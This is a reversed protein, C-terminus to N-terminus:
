GWANGMWRKHWAQFMLVNWLSSHWNSVRDKHERWRGRIIGPALLGSEALSVPDLLDEAWDRLPGRLWEDIPVSFGMTPREVIHKPVRRYLIQRLIWKNVGRRVKFQRPLGSAFEVVRHDLLPVRAELSVAMSARDVKTLIDDPLYTLIDLYQTWAIDDKLWAPRASDWLVGKPEDGSVVVEGPKDWFSVLRLYAENPSVSIFDALKYLKEGFLRPRKKEPIVAGLRDWAGPSLCRIAAAALKRLGRPAMNLCSMLRAVNVYRDYGAFLEDGGDGTLSVTVHRRTLESVLFTPIQSSDAFPEDYIDALRPIVDLAHSPEVYLETHDTGLHRAVAEAHKAEDYGPMNFGISFTRVPRNSYAQMLAAVTSSDIGGSLFAGLPVDAIMRRKVSDCLLEELADVLEMDDKPQVSMRQRRVVDGLQWYPKRNVEGGPSVRVIVGPELKGVNKFISHPAPVYGLRMFARLAGADISPTFKVAALIAKLESGFLFDGNFQGYYLPKIGLRDRVLYLCRHTKEWIAFAFMGITETTAREIGWEACAELIVETDSTGRFKRGSRRLKSRLESANYIEGNYSIVLRGCSSQM